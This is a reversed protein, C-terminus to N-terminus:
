SYPDTEVDPFALTTRDNTGGTDTSLAADESGPEIAARESEIIDWGLTRGHSFLRPDRSLTGALNSKQDQGGVVFGQSLVVDLLDGIKMPSRNGKIAEICADALQRAMTGPRSPTRGTTNEEIKRLIGAARAERDPGNTEVSPVTYRELTRLFAELDAVEAQAKGLKARVAEVDRHARQLDANARAVIDETIPM